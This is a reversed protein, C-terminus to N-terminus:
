VNGGKEEIFMIHNIVKDIKVQKGLLSRIILIVM